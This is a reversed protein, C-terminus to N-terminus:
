APSVAIQAKARRVGILMLATTLVFWLAAMGFQGELGVGFDVLVGTLGPGIASGLVMVAMAVAKISGIYRTGYFEAWFAAPLTANAGATLGFFVLGLAVGGYGDSFYFLLFAVVMPVQSWPLLRATGWRDLAWGSALLSLLGVGTFLPFLATLALHSIDKLGAFYVQHFFFATGFASPGLLAPVMFWFLRHRLAQSRTWHHGGMGTASQTAAIQAPTRETRLLALLVPIFALMVVAVVLWLLRWDFVGLLAVVAMPLVAEGASYGLAAIALARGRSATFWRAMAVVAMHSMMGQGAFRLGLIALPLLAAYPNLAMFAAAAGLTLLVGVALTRVRFRDTLTGAWIMLVASATTGLSYIGGWEGHSLGFEARIEGAFVSIFFTQGFSSLFTLLAGAGLWRASYRILDRTQKM